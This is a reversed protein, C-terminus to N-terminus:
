GSTELLADLEGRIEMEVEAVVYTLAKNVCDAGKPGREVIEMTFTFDQGGLTGSGGGNYVTRFWYTNGKLMATGNVLPVWLQLAMTGDNHSCTAGRTPTSVPGDGYTGAVVLKGLAASDVPRGRVTGECSGMGPAASQIGGISPTDEVGPDLNLPVRLFCRLEDVTTDSEAATPAAGLASAMVIIAAVRRLAGRRAKM